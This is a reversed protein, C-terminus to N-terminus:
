LCQRTKFRKRKSDGKLDRQSYSKYYSNGKKKWNQFLAKSVQLIARGLEVNQTQAGLDQQAERLTYQLDPLDKTTGCNRLAHRNPSGNIFYM